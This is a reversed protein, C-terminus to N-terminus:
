PEQESPWETPQPGAGAPQASVVAPDSPLPALAPASAARIAAPEVVAPRTAPLASAPSYQMDVRVKGVSVGLQDQIVERALQTIEQTKFRLDTAPDVEVELNVDAKKGRSIVTPKARKVDAVGALASQLRQTIAKVSVQIMRGESDAVEVAKRRQPRLELWLFLVCLAIIGVGSGLYAWFAGSTIRYPVVATYLGTVGDRLAGLLTGPVLLAFVAIALLILLLITLVVRNFLNMILRKNGKKPV